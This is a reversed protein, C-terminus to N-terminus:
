SEVRPLFNNEILFSLSVRKEVLKKSVLLKSLNIATELLPAPDGALLRHNEELSLFLIGKFASFLEEPSIHFTDSLLAIAQHPQEKLFNLAEFYKSVLLRLSKPNTEIVEKKVALVDVIRGPIKTSDFLLNAGKNLLRTKVPDFTVVADVQDTLFCEEHEDMTCPILEIDKTNLGASDLAGDLLIAGVAGYEVAVRKGKLDAVKKVSTKGVLVDGGNSTDIVLIVRMEIGSQILTLVEDLTLAGGELNDNRIARIIETSSPFEILKIESNDYFGQDRALFLASYGPWNNSGIRLPPESMPVCGHLFLFGVVFM